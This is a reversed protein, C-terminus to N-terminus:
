PVAKSEQGLKEETKSQKDQWATLSTQAPASQEAVVPSLQPTQMPISITKNTRMLLRMYDAWASFYGRDYDAYLRSEMREQFDRRFNQLAHKDVPDLNTFFSYHDNNNRRSLLMGQLARYYGHNWETREIKEKIRQLEREAEALQKATILQFFRVIYAKKVPARM